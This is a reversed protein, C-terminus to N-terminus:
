CSADLVATVFSCEEQEKASTEYADAEAETNEQDVLPRLLLQIVNERWMDMQNAHDNMAEGLIALKERLKRSELGGIADSVEVEPIEEFSQEEALRAVQEM